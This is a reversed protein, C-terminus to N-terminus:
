NTSEILLGIEYIVKSKSQSNESYYYISKIYKLNIQIIM